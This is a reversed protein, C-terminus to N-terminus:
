PTEWVLAPDVIEWLQMVHDQAAVNVYHEAPPLIMAMVTDPGLLRYRATKIEDWTPHRAVCSITLHWRLDGNVGSPEHGLLINCEGMQFAHLEIEAGQAILERMKRFAADRAYEIIPQEVFGPEHTGPIQGGWIRARPTGTLTPPVKM